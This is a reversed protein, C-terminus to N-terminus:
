SNSDDIRQNIRYAMRNVAGLLKFMDNTGSWSFGVGGDRFLYVAAIEDIRGDRAQELLIELYDITQQNSRTKDTEISRLVPNDRM